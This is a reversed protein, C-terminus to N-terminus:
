STAAKKIAGAKAAEEAERAAKKAAKSEMAQNVQTAITQLETIAAALKVPDKITPLTLILANSKANLDAVSEGRAEFNQVFSTFKTVDMPGTIDKPEDSDVPNTPTAEWSYTQFRLALRAALEDHVTKEGVFAVIDAVSLKDFDPCPYTQKAAKMDGRKYPTAFFDWTPTQATVVGAENKIDRAISVVLVPPTQAPAVDTTTPTATPAQVTPAQATTNNDEPM